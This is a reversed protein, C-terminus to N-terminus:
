CPMAVAMVPSRSLLLRCCYSSLAPAEEEDDDDDDCDDEGEDDVEGEGLCWELQGDDFGGLCCDTVLGRGLVAHIV